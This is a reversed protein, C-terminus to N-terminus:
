VRFGLGKTIKRGAGSVGSSFGRSAAREEQFVNQLTLARTYKSYLIYFDSRLNSKLVRAEM